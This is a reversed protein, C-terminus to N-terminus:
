HAADWNAGIGIEVVLPVSLEAARSMHETIAAAATDLIDEAVEFVLEDHVQMIMRADLNGHTLWGHLRIMARKIIDAATGQMPANVATREAYQRRQANRSHIDPLYLRRGFLTEVFGQERAQAHISETFTKVDPYRQFYRDMYDQAEDRRIGLQRALGFASMGYILGFNIAKARRRQEKTIDEASVGFIEMATAAHVDAGLSFAKGLGQDGSLHAMIRLEIQSYDAALLRYGPPAIFAQRIRRGQATRIPINQLNPDSSSLRGTSTVAQHYNTHVRGSLPHIRTPLTDTYTSKLKGLSRHELILRPLPYHISLERLVSEATSPQGTPTKSHVPLGLRDFLIEQIQKPSALNFPGEAIRHAQREIDAMGHALEESQRALLTADVMVGQQEMEALVPVLPMEIDEFVSRLRPTGRLRPWLADHLAFTVEADEAAYPAAKDLSIEDFTLQRANKGTAKGAIEQFPIIKYGLHKLALTDMDHRSATSDLVYSELMTDFALGAMPIGHRALVRSDYKLNQGVKPRNPDELLPRLAELVMNRSLQKPAGPYDHGVPLYAAQYRPKAATDHSDAPTDESIDDPTDGPIDSPIDSPIDGSANSVHRSAQSEDSEVAFSIGVIEAVLCDLSTTETDFALLPANRLREMWVEFQEQDLILEYRITAPHPLANSSESPSLSEPGINKPKTLLESLWTKFELQRYLAALRDTDPQARVLDRPGRHDGHELSVDCKITVLERSIRLQELSTRLNEGVKGKIGHANDVIADLSGYTHLWKLATKPGVKSVGPVNDVADGVLALYDVMLSPSIGFKNEVGKPDLRSGDMTNILIVDDTVLQAFDKDGSSILVSLGMNRANTALTGIVDDAEVGPVEIIPLGLAAVVAHLPKIQQRLEDPMPPRNAKYEPYIEERFTKGKADFIIAIHKPDLDGLIRRLMNVVGYVAGTPEGNSNTLAPMAHFARYLYSSGDILVLLPKQQM